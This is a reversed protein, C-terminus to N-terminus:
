KLWPGILMTVGISTGFFNVKLFHLLSKMSEYELMSYTSFLPLNFSKRWAKMHWVKCLRIWCMKGVRPFMFCRKKLMKVIRLMIYHVKLFLLCPPLLHKQVLMNIFIILSQLLFNKRAWLRQSFSANFMLSLCTQVWFMKKRM